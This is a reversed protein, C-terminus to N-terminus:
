TYNVSASETIGILGVYTAAPRGRQLGMIGDALTEPQLGDKYGRTFGYGLHTQSTADTYQELLTSPCISIAKIIHLRHTKVHTPIQPLAIRLAKHDDKAADGVELQRNM